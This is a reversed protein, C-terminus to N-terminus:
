ADKSDEIRKILHPLRSQVAAVTGQVIAMASLGVVFGSGGAGLWEGLHPLHAVPPGLYNATVMGVIVSGVQAAPQMQRFAFAHAVGGCFGSIMWQAHLGLDELTM